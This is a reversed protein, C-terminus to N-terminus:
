IVFRKAFSIYLSYLHIGNKDVIDSLMLDSIIFGHKPPQAINLYNYPNEISCIKEHAQADRSSFQIGCIECRVLDSKNKRTKPPMNGKFIFIKSCTLLKYSTFLIVHDTFRIIHGARSNDQILICFHDNLCKNDTLLKYNLKSSNIKRNSLRFIGSQHFM